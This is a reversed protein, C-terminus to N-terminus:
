DVFVVNKLTLEILSFLASCFRGKLYFMSSWSAVISSVCGVNLPVPTLVASSQPDLTEIEKSERVGTYATIQRFGNYGFGFCQFSGDSNFAPRSTTRRCTKDM